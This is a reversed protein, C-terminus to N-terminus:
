LASCLFGCRVGTLLQPERHLRHIKNPFQGPSGFGVFWNKLVTVGPEDHIIHNQVALIDEDSVPFFCVSEGGTHHSIPYFSHGVADVFPQFSKTILPFAVEVTDNSIVGVLRDCHETMGARRRGSQGVQEAGSEGPKELNDSQIKSGNSDNVQTIFRASQGEGSQCQQIVGAM